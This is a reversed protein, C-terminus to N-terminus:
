LLNIKHDKVVFDWCFFLNIIIGEIQFWFQLNAKLDPDQELLTTSLSRAFVTAAHTFTSNMSLLLMVPKTFFLIAKSM